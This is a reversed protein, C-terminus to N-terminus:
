TGISNKCHDKSLWDLFKCLICAWRRNEPVLRGARSSITEKGDGGTTANGLRDFGLAIDHARTGNPAVIIAIFMWIAGIISGFIGVLLFFLLLVRPKISNVIATM